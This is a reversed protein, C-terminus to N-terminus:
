EDGDGKKWTFRFTRQKNKKTYATIAEEVIKATSSMAASESKGQTEVQHSIIINALKGIVSEWDTFSRGSGSSWVARFARSEIGRRDGIREKMQNELAKKVDDLEKM